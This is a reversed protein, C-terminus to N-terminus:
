ATAARGSVPAAADATVQLVASAGKELLSPAPATADAGRRWRDRFRTLSYDAPDIAPQRECILDAM